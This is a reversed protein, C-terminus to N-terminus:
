VSELLELLKNVGMCISYGSNHWDMRIFSTEYKNKWDLKFPILKQVVGILHVENDNNLFIVPCGSNGYYVPIDTVFQGTETDYSSIVGKALFPKMEFPAEPMLSTPYGYIYVTRCWREQFEENQVDFYSLQDIQIPRQGHQNQMNAGNLEVAWLDTKESYIIRDRNEDFNLNFVVSSEFTDNQITAAVIVNAGYLQDKDKDYVVHYDTVLYYRDQYKVFFGSGKCCEGCSLMCVAYSTKLDGFKM